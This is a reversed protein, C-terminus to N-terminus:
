HIEDWAVPLAHVGYISMETRFPVEEVPAALRLTPIRRLLTEWAIELEIRALNQGLCQHPGYGFAVHGRASRDLELTDSQAFQAPDRNAAPLGVVVFEGSAIPQGGVTADRTARRLVGHHVITLYRLEEEIASTMLDPNERLARLQEPNRLLNATGLTIMNATTEHGAVLLLIGVHVLEEDTLPDESDEREILRGLLDDAPEERKAQVLNYIYTGVQEGATMKDEISSEMSVLTSGWTQFDARDATPVGLLESIVLSPIPLGFDRYLDASEKGELADIHGDVMEQIRPRLARMRRVTFEGTLRRRVRAHDAGDLQIFMGPEVPDGTSGGPLHNFPAERSSFTEGDALVARADAHTTVLWADFGAPVRVRVPGGEDRLREYDEPPDFPCGREMPLDSPTDTRTETTM